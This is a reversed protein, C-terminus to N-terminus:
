GGHSALVEANLRRLAGIAAEYEAVAARRAATLGPELGNGRIQTQGGPRMGSRPLNLGYRHDIAGPCCLGHAPCVQPWPRAVEVRQPSTIPFAPATPPM